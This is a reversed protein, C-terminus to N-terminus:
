HKEVAETWAVSSHNRGHWAVRKSGIRLRRLAFVGPAAVCRSHMLVPAHNSPASALDTRSWGPLSRDMVVMVMVM